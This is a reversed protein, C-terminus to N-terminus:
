YLEELDVKFYGLFVLQLSESPELHIHDIIVIGDRTSLILRPNTPKVDLLRVGDRTTTNELKGRVDLIIALPKESIDTDISM